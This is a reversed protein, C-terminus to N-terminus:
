SINPGLGATNLVGSFVKKAPGEMYAREKEFEIILTGGQTKVLTRNEVIGLRRAVAVVAVAGTGCSLTEAEVGREFTRVELVEGRTHVRVFDVNAGKPFLSSWRLPLAREQIDFDFSDVFVVAHPVGTNVVSVIEGEVPYEIVEDLEVDMPIDAPKFLPTGMEVRVWFSGDPPSNDDMDPSEKEGEKVWYSTGMVGAMTEVTCSGAHTYGSEYAFYVLCRIGNGCMEAESGDQQFLRMRVDAIESHSLFLVGDAGVGFRRNCVWEAFAPKKDDPVQPSNFEDIVVFDNGNGHMKCFHVEEVMIDVGVM